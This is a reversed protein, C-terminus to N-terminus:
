KDGELASLRNKIIIGVENPEVGEPIIDPQTTNWLLKLEEIRAKRESQSLLTTIAQKLNERLEYATDPMPMGQKIGLADFMKDIDDDVNSM